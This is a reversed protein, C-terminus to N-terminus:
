IKIEEDQLKPSFQVVVDNAQDHDHVHTGFRDNLVHRRPVGLDGTV